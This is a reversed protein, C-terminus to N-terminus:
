KETITFGKEKNGYVRFRYVDGGIKCIAETYDPTRHAEMVEEVGREDLLYMIADNM